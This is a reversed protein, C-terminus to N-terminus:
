SATKIELREDLYIFNIQKWGIKFSGILKMTKDKQIFKVNVFILHIFLNGLERKSINFM